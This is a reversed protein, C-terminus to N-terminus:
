RAIKVFIPTAVPDLMRKKIMKALLLLRPVNTPDPQAAKVKM